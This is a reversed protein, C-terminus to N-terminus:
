AAEITLAEIRVLEGTERWDLDAVFHDRLALEAERLASLTARQLPCVRAEFVHRAGQFTASAWPATTSGLLDIAGLRDEIAALLLRHPCRKM